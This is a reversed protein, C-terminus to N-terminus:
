IVKWLLTSVAAAAAFFVATAVLSVPHLRSCGTLGHGSSCGGSMRTGFGVM